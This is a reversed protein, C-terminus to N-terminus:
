PMFEPYRKKMDEEVEWTAERLSLRKWVVKVFPINRHRLWREKRDIIQEPEAEYTLDDRMDVDEYEIVHEPDPQYKKLQSIHFVDHLRSLNPPLAIRYTVPGVKALIEFPGIYRPSLKKRKIARSIGTIPSVKLFVHDGVEFELPRRRKDAYSKQRSQATLLRKKIIKIEETTQEVM